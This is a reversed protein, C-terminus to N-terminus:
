LRDQGQGCIQKVSFLALAEDLPGDIGGKEWWLAGFAIGYWVMGNCISTAIGDGVM